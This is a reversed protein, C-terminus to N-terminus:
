AGALYRRGRATLARVAAYPLLVDMFCREMRGTARRAVAAMNVVGVAIEASGSEGDASTGDISPKSRLNPTWCRALAPDALLDRLAFTL